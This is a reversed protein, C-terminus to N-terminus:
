LLLLLLRLQLKLTTPATLTNALVNFAACITFVVLATLTAALTAFITFITSLTLTCAATTISPM